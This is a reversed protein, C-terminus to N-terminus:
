PLSAGEQEDEFAGLGVLQLYADVPSLEETVGGWPDTPAATGLSWSTVGAGVLVGALAAAAALARAWVPAQSWSPGRARERRFRALLERTFQPTPPSPPPLELGLWIRSLEDFAARTEPEEALQRDLWLAEEASIEGRLRRLLSWELETNM